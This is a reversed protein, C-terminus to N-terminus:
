VLVQSALQHYTPLDVYNAPQTVLVDEEHYGTMYGHSADVSLPGLTIGMLEEKSLIPLETDTQDLLDAVRVSGNLIEANQVLAYLNPRLFGLSKTSCLVNEKLLRHLLDRGHDAYSVGAALGYKMSYPMFLRRFVAMVDLWIAIVPQDPTPQVGSAETLQHAVPYKNGTFLL